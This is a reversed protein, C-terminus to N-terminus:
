KEGVGDTHQVRVFAEGLAGDGLSGIVGEGDGEARFRIGDGDDDFVHNAVHARAPGIEKGGVALLGIAIAVGFELRGGCRAVLEDGLPFGAPFMDEVGEGREGVGVEAAGNENAVFGVGDCLGDIALDRVIGVM